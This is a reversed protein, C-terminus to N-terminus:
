DPVPSRATAEGLILQWGEDWRGPSDSSVITEAPTPTLVMVTWSAGFPDVYTLPEVANRLALLFLRFEKQATLGWTPGSAPGSVTLDFVRTKTPLATARVTYSVLIPTVTATTTQFEFVFRCRKSTFTKM